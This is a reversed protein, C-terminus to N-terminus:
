DNFYKENFEFNLENLLKVKYDELFGNLHKKRNRYCFQYLAKESEFGRAQPWRTPHTERFEKLKNYNDLWKDILTHKEFPFGISELKEIQDESLEENSFGKLISNCFRYLRMENDAIRDSSKPWRNYATIFSKLENFFDDWSGQKESIFSFNIEQLAEVQSEYLTGSELKKNCSYCFSYLNRNESAKPYSNNEQLHKRLENYSNWWTIPIHKERSRSAISKQKLIVPREQKIFDTKKARPRKNSNLYPTILNILLNTKQGDLNNRKVERTQINMFRYLRAEKEDQNSYPLRGFENIFSKLLLFNEDWTKREIQLDAVRILDEPQYKKIKLGVKLGKFFVFRNNEEMQINSYINKSTTDRYKNVYETIEDIHKPETQAMLFEETIDRITGGRIDKEEEWEKLGYVSTRGFPIFGTKRQMSARISNEDTDYDPYLEIVKKCIEEVKSPQGIAELAEYAYEYVQKLTNRKFIINDYSDLSIQFENFLIHESIQIIEQSVLPCRDKKFTLLYTEFHFTYDEEIRDNLRRDIDNILEDFNFSNVIEKKILYNCNWDHISRSNILRELVITRENGILTHSNELLISFLKNIFHLNFSNKEKQNIESILEDSITIMDSNIDIGYLNLADFEFGKLFLLISNLNDFVTNRLQRTREKTIGLEDALEKLSYPNDNNIYNMGKEFIIKERKDFLIEHEILISCTKFFPLGNSNDYDRWIKTIISPTLNFRSILFSNFLEITLEDENEFISIIEIQEKINEFFIILEKETKEGVNKLNKIQFYEDALSLALEKINFNENLYKELANYSRVSLERARSEIINNLIKKQRATLRDIKQLIPNEVPIEIPKHFLAFDFNEYKKCLSILETNSKQGCNRLKFFDNNEWYYHLISVLDELNNWECINQSRVSLNEM